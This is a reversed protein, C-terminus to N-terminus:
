GASAKPGSAQELQPMKQKGKIENMAREIAQVTAVIQESTHESTIFFRVRALHEEVAPHLIPQANIGEEFLKESLMLAHYSSGTIIPIVPSDHSMGTNLGSKKAQTLFLKSNERLQMVREPHEALYRVSALAAGVSGPPIGNSYVYGPTTYRLYQIMPESGLVFGGCSGFSKSLTGMWLDGDSRDIGYVEALGRGTKGLTGCSHAEDVYLIARHRNKVELFKDLEPSDGDMSYLGEIAIMVRRYEGRIETLIQDLERWDNHPFPRRRAGSMLAGQVISNHALSDHIILDGKGLLHGIISENCAHGGPFTIADECGFFEALAGDLEGHITKEGSVLRSASVSTGYKEIAEIAGKKVVPDGSLGLYNYSSFSILERGDIQTTNGIRGEHVSFYPNRVGTSSLMTHLQQLRIYEPMREIRYYSEPIVKPAQIQRVPEFDLLEKLKLPRDGIHEEIADTIERVTEIEMLVEDPFRGGFTEELSNAIQLRELSDLGLDVVVNTDIGMQKARERAVARIHVMVIEAVDANFDATSVAAESTVPEPERELSEQDWVTWSAVILLKDELFAKRCAHRQIKGSSTKPVSGARVLIVADPPLEHEQTVRSRIGQLVDSWDKNTGREVECVIILRERDDDTQVSFAASGASRLRDSSAEVTAEMDQPYRNVGRVIILDKIRGTVFLEGRDIFGLDGTRLFRDDGGNLSAGFTEETAEDNNWYGKGVSPSNVWVEGVEGDNVEVHKEPHVVVVKEDPLVQGCGVLRRSGEAEAKTTVVKREDLADGDFWRITHPEQKEKGTVILTTEAMGYCPYHTNAQFGHKKFRDTFADLVDARIPEAGNFAVEWRSLDMGACEEDTVKENCLEYAFNPGGSITAHYKSIARLWRVPKILFAMPSMLVNPRGFYLPNLVGGVLGMDHYTPLWTVGCGSRSCEFARSILSCNHILNAHTLVVGKPSGTSGSTYQLLAIDDESVHPDVWDSALEMPVEDTAVWAIKKLGPSDEIMPQVREIVDRVTLAVRADADDSIAQIRGMNRNRRPPYAPVPVVGAYHCGFLGAVFDIGPPYLLLARQGRMGLAVLKAAIAKARSDLEAYTWRIEDDEGDVLYIFATEDPQAETWYLLRECFNTEPPSFPAFLEELSRM